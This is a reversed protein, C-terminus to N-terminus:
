GNMRPTRDALSGLGVTGIPVVRSKSMYWDNQVFELRPIEVIGFEHDRYQNLYRNFRDQHAPARSFRIVTSHATEIAYRQDITHELGSAKFRGRLEARLADLAGNLPFGQIMVCAPSATIGKFLIRIPGIGAAAQNIVDLYAARDLRSGDFGVRCTIISLITLHFDNRGYYYLEPEIARGENLFDCIKAALRDDLRGVVTLGRRTDHSKDDLQPDVAFRNEAFGAMAERWLADYIKELHNMGTGWVIGSM